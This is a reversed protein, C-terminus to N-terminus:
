NLSNLYFELKDYVLKREFHLQFYNYGNQAYNIMDIPSKNKMIEINNALMLSDGSNSTLGSCSDIITQAGIGELNGIIPKKCALYSQVKSPITLSFILSKKLSVLLVDACAFYYPMVDSPKNGLFIINSLNLLEVQKLLYEKARGEGIFVWNVEIKREKLIIAANLITDFDQAFGINGAFLLNFGFPIENKYKDLIEVPKYFSEVTNPIYILKSRPVGKTVLFNIFGESQVYIQNSNKYFLNMMKDVIKLIKKSSIGGTDSLSEPWIDQIYFSLPIKFKFKAFIAPFGVTGPSLQYVLINDFKKNIYSIKLISFFVFSIYNLFLYFPTGSKRPILKTRYIKIGNWIENKNSFFKYGNYFKGNPYNPIGTLVTIDHGRNKLEFCLDNVRFNEPWFYQSIVLIRM